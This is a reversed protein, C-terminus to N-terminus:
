GLRVCREGDRLAASLVRDVGPAVEVLDPPERVLIAVTLEQLDQADQFPLRGSLCEDFITEVTHIDLRADLDRKSGAQEPSLYYPTGLVIGTQTLSGSKGDIGRFRSVGFDIIKVFDPVGATNELLFINEPKLDRHIIQARHAAGLGDLLQLAIYAFLWVM